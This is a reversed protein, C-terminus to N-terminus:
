VPDIEVHNDSRVWGVGSLRAESDPAHASAHEQADDMAAEPSDAEIDVYVVLTYELAVEWSPM